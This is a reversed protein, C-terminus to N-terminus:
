KTEEEYVPIKSTYPLERRNFWGCEKCDETPKKFLEKRFKCHQCPVDNRVTIYDIVKRKQM